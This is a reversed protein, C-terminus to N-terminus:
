SVALSKCPSLRAYKRNWDAPPTAGSRIQFWPTMESTVPVTAWTLWATDRANFPSLHRLQAFIVVVLAVPAHKRLMNGSCTEQAHKRSMRLQHMSHSQELKTFDNLVM